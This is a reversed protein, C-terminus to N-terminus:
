NIIKSLTDIVNEDYKIRLLYINNEGCYSEKIKDMKQRLLFTKEGGFWKISRFHQEGDYEICTNHKYLYFDFKLKRKYLCNEFTKQFEFDINNKILYEKVQTEGRSNYCNPCGVGSLHSLPVQEFIGHEKCEIKVKTHANKYNVLSYDYRDNHKEKSRNIFEDTTLRKNNSCSPCGRKALHHDPKQEFIGHIPCVIKVKIKNNKYEVLDYNYKYNHIKEVNNIFHEQPKRLRNGAEIGKCKPCGNNHLHNDPTQEFTNHIPCIIIINTKMNNYEVLSYDYRNHHIINSKKIFDELELKRM